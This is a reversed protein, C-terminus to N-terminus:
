YIICSNGRQIRVQEIKRREKTSIFEPHIEGKNKRITGVITIKHQKLIEEALTVSTFWNDFTVNRGTLSIPQILRKVVDALSNSLNYPGEPHKGAYIEMQSTYFMRSDVLCFVKIVYKAPKNQMFQRFPRRGQFPVLSEDIKCYKSISYNNRCNDAFMEFVERIPALRDTKKRKERDSKNDFRLCRLLFKFRQEHFYKQGQEMRQGYTQQISM